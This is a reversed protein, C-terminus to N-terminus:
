CHLVLLLLLLCYHYHGGLLLLLLHQCDKLLLLLDLAHVFQTPNQTLTRKMLLLPPWAHAAAAAGLAAADATVSQAM